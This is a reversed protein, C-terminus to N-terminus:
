YRRKKNININMKKYIILQMNKENDYKHKRVNIIQEENLIHKYFKHITLSNNTHVLEINSLINIEDNMIHIDYKNSKYDKYYILLNYIYIKLYYLYDNNKLSFLYVIFNLCFELDKNKKKETYNDNKLNSEFVKDNSNNKNKVKKGIKKLKIFINTFNKFKNKVKNLYNIYLYIDNILDNELFICSEFDDVKKYKRILNFNIKITFNKYYPNLYYNKIRYKANPIIIKIIEKHM